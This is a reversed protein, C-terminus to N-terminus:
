DVVGGGVCVCAGWQTEVRRSCIGAWVLSVELVAESLLKERNRLQGGRRRGAQHHCCWWWGGGWRPPTGFLEGWGVTVAM